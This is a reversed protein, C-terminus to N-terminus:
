ILNMKQEWKWRTEISLFLFIKNNLSGHKHYILLYQCDELLYMEPLKPRIVNESHDKHQSIAIKLNLTQLGFM